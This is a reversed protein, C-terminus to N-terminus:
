SNPYLRAVSLTIEGLNDEKYTDIFFAYLTTTELVKLTLTESYGNLSSWTGPVPMNTKQNMVRGGNIWLLVVPEGSSRKNSGYSFQGTKIRLLYIGPELTKAVATEQLERVQEPSLVYCNSQSNVTLHEIKCGERPTTSEIPYSRATTAQETPRSWVSGPITTVAAAGVAGALGIGGLQDTGSVGPELLNSDSPSLGPLNPESRDVTSPLRMSKSYAIQVWQSDPSLYGVEAIYDRDSVPIPVTIEQVAEDCDYYYISHAAQTEPDIGTIDHVRLQFQQEAQTKFQDRESASVMWSVSMLDPDAASSQSDIIKVQSQTSRPASGLPAIAAMVATSVNLPVTTPTPPFDPSWSAEPSLEPVRVSNSRALPMWEHEITTYGIESIYYHDLHPVPVQWEQDVDDNFEDCNYVQVSNPAQIDVDVHDIDYVRLQLQQGGLQKATDRQAQPLHWRACVSQEDQTQLTMRCDSEILEHKLLPTDTTAGVLGADIAAGVLTGSKTGTESELTSGSASGSTAAGVGAAIGAGIAAGGLAGGPIGTGSEVTASIQPDVDETPSVSSSPVRMSNSRALPLWTGDEALYGIEALYDREPNAVAIQGERDLVDCDYSEMYHAPQTDFDIDTVDYVRLQFDRGGYDRAALKDADAATWYANVTQGKGPSLTLRSNRDRLVWTALGAAGAVGALGTARALDSNITPIGANVGPMFPNGESIGASTEIPLNEILPTTSPPVALEPPLTTEVPPTTPTQDIAVGPAPPIIQDTTRPEPRIPPVPRAQVPEDDQGRLLWWLGAGLVPLGLLWLLWWPFKGGTNVQTQTTTTQSTGATGTLDPETGPAAVSDPSATPTTVAQPPSAEATPSPSATPQDVTKPANAAAAVSALTATKIATQGADSTMVGLFALTEPTAKDKHYVYSRYQSYPYRPDDPLTKHMAIIRVNDQGLVQDAIAYGIGDKGLAKVVADTEDENVRNTTSGSKFPTGEFVKYGGLARRTDSFEPRDVFNIKAPEGGVESWNTIEGRFMKAFQEFSINGQFPNEPSVIVAIKGRDIPVAVLGQAKQADTLPRGVTALDIDGKLLANIAKQSDQTTIEVEANSYEETFKQRLAQNLVDMSSTGKIKVIANDPLARPLPFKEPAEALAPELWSFAQGEIVEGPNLPLTVPTTLFKPATALALAIASLHLFTRSSRSM